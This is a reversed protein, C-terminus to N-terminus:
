RASRKSRRSNPCRVTCGSSIRPTTATTRSFGTRPTLIRGPVELRRRQARPRGVREAYRDGPHLRSPDRRRVVHPELHARRVLVPYVNKPSSLWRIAPDPGPPRDEHGRRLGLQRLHLEEGLSARGTGRDLVYFFGNKNAQMLVQRHAGGVDLDTLILKQTADFDWHDNPTTQYHWALRGTDAHLAIISATYLGDLNPNGLQRLDYPAANGTGFYVLKLAPDYAFGDWVTGGGKYKPDRHPDWTKAAAALDPSELPQGPAPPVTFFRWKFAGTELDYASVYGRVGGVGMDGGGNGIVVVNGAIQPAGTSSYPLQPRRHHRSGLDQKGTAADLAHLRGDTSAVYVKGKWVAVGRNVLDCCPKEGYFAVPRPDYRWLEKGTAADLAYVYGWTGSTYM